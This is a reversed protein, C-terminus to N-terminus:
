DPAANWELIIMRELLSRRSISDVTFESRLKRVKRWLGKMKKFTDNTRSTPSVFGYLYTLTSFVFVSIFAISWFIDGLTFLLSRAM